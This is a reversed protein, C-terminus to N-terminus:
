VELRMVKEIGADLVLVRTGDGIRKEISQQMKQMDEERLRTRTTLILLGNGKLGEVEKVPIETGDARRFFLGEKM